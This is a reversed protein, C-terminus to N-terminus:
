IEPGKEFLRARAQARRLIDLEGFFATGSGLRPESGDSSLMVYCVDDEFLPSIIGHWNHFLLFHFHRGWLHMKKEDEKVIM